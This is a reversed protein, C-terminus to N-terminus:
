GYVKIIFFNKNDKNVKLFYFEFLLFCNLFFLFGGIEERFIFYWGFLGMILNFYLCFRNM